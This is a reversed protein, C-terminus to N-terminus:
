QLLQALELNEPKEYMVRGLGKYTKYLEIFCDNDLEVHGIVEYFYKRKTNKKTVMTRIKFKERAEEITMNM